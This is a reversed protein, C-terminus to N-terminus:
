DGKIGFRKGNKDVVAVASSIPRVHSAGHPNGPLRHIPKLPTSLLLVWLVSMSLTCFRGMFIFWWEWRPAVDGTVVLEDYYGAVILLASGVGLAM